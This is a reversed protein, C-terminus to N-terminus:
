VTKIENYQKFYYVLQIGHWMLVASLSACNLLTSSTQPETCIVHVSYLMIIIYRVVYTNLRRFWVCIIYYERPICTNLIVAIHSGGAYAETNARLECCCCIRRTYIIYIIYKKTNLLFFEFDRLVFFVSNNLCM